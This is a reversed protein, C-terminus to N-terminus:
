VNEELFKELALKLRAQRSYSMEEYVDSLERFENFIDIIGDILHEMKNETLRPTYSLPRELFRVIELTKIKSV